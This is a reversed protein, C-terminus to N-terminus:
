PRGGAYRAVLVLADDMDKRYRAVIGDAIRQPPDDATLDRTFGAKVGDTALILTDGPAIPIASARLPPLRGGVVGGALVLSEERRSAGPNARLLAGEVNGVGLWTMTGQRPDFWALSMVAGRTSRLAEHCRRILAAPPEGAHSALVAAAAEAAEAAGDGHGLGDVVAALVGGASPRVVHRDGSRAQGEPMAAAVGTEILPM